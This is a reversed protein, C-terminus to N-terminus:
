GGKNRNYRRLSMFFAVLSAGFVTALVAGLGGYRVEENLATSVDSHGRLTTLEGQMQRYKSIYDPDRISMDLTQQGGRHEFDHIEKELRRLQVVYPREGIEQVSRHNYGGIYASSLTLLGSAIMEAIRRKQNM